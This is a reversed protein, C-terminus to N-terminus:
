LEELATLKKHKMNKFQSPSLGTIKKFQNSLHAVSSYHLKWAIESLRLNDYVILEKVREIKHFIIFHEISKGTVQSFLNALYTYSHNLKIGIYYSNKIKPFEDSYHIMEIIMTKIKEVLINKCDELLVLGFEALGSKLQEYKADSLTGIIEVEGLEVTTYKLDLYELVAKVVMKCRYSVMNKIYIKTKKLKGTYATTENASYAAMVVNNERVRNKEDTSKVETESHHLNILQNILLSNNSYTSSKM